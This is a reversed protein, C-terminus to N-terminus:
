QSKANTFIDSRIADKFLEPLTAHGRNELGVMGREVPMYGELYQVGSELFVRIEQSPELTFGFQNGFQFV